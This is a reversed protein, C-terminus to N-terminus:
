RANETSYRVAIEFLIREDFPRALVDVGPIPATPHPLAMAPLGTSASLSCNASSQPRGISAAPVVEPLPRM